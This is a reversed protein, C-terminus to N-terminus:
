TPVVTWIWSTDNFFYFLFIILSWINDVEVTSKEIREVAYYGM